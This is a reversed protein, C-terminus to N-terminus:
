EPEYTYVKASKVHAVNYTVLGVTPREPGFLPARDRAEMITVGDVILRVMEGDFEAVMHHLRGPEIFRDVSHSALESGDRVIRNLTNGAGGFQLWYGSERLQSTSAPVASHIAPSFDCPRDTDAPTMIELELRHAGFFPRNIIIESHGAGVRLTGEEVHWNGMLPKWDSGLKDRDFDDAFALTWGRGCRPCVDLQPREARSEMREIQQLRSRAVVRDSDDAGEITLLEEYAPRAVYALGIRMHCHGLHLMARARQADDSALEAAREFWARAQITNRERYATMAADFAEQYTDLVVDWVLPEQDGYANNYSHVRTDGGVPWPSIVRQSPQPLHFWNNHIWAGQSPVGRIAIPRVSGEFTNHHVHMWDGAINTGDGRDRGGHMDVHHSIAEPGIWNHAFEYGDGPSGGSAVHHRGHSFRNAIIRTDSTNVRVPYGLGTKWIHHLYNHHIYGGPANVSIGRNNFNYIECNDVEGGYHGITFFAAAMAVRETGGYAGEFRLGTVRVEDGGTAFMTGSSIRKILAGPSGNHGRSGALTLGGPITLTPQGTLDIQVGDPVFIVQGAEAQQLAKLFEEISTVTIDGSTHIEHYGEGGGIPGLETPRAGYVEGDIKVWTKGSESLHLDAADTGSQGMCAVPLALVAATVVLLLLRM